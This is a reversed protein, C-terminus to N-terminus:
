LGLLIAVQQEPNGGLQLRKNQELISQVVYSSQLGTLRVSINDVTLTNSTFDLVINRITESGPVIYSASIPSDGSSLIWRIDDSNTFNILQNAIKDFITNNM